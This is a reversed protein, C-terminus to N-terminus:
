LVVENGFRLREPEWHMVDYTPVAPNGSRGIASRRLRRRADSGPGARPERREPAELCSGMQDPQSWDQSVVHREHLRDRASRGPRNLRLRSLHAPAPNSQRDGISERKGTHASASERPRSSPALDEVVLASPEDHATSLAL